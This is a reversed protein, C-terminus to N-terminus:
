HTKGWSTSGTLVVERINDMKEIIDQLEYKVVPRLSGKANLYDKSEVFEEIDVLRGKYGKQRYLFSGDNERLSRIFNSCFNHLDDQMIYATGGDSIQPCSLVLAELMSEEKVSLKNDRLVSFVLEFATTLPLVKLADYAM